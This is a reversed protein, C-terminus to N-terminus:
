LPLPFECPGEPQNGLHFHGRSCTPFVCAIADLPGRGREYFPGVVTGWAGDRHSFDFFVVVDIARAWSFGMWRRISSTINVLYPNGDLDLFVVGFIRADNSALARANEASRELQRAAHRMRPYLRRADKRTNEQHEEPTFLPGSRGMDAVLRQRVIQEQRKATQARKVEAVHLGSTHAVRYDAGHRGGEPQWTVAGVRRLFPAVLFESKTSEYLSWHRLRGQMPIETDEPRVMRALEAALVLLRTRGGITVIDGRLQHKSAPERLAERRWQLPFLRELLALEASLSRHRHFEPLWNELAWLDDATASIIRTATTRGTRGSATESSM